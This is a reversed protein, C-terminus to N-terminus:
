SGNGNVTRPILIGASGHKKWMRQEHTEDLRDLEETMSTSPGFHEDEGEFHEHFTQAQLEKVRFKCVPCKEPFPVEFPEWCQICLRGEKFRQVDDPDWTTDLEHRVTIGDYLAVDPRESVALPKAPKAWRRVMEDAM